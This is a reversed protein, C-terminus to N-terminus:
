VAAPTHERDSGQVPIPRSDSRRPLPFTVTALCGDDNQLSFHGDLDSEVLQQVITLGLGSDRGLEFGAPLGCGNDHVSTRVSDADVEIRVGIRGDMGVGLGHGMANWILENVVLAFVTARDEDIEVRDGDVSIQVAMGTAAADSSAIEAMKNVIDIATASEGDQSSLLDHVAAMGAIRGASLALVSAVEPSRTRRSQLNLLSAVTQLNNKVRHHLERLLLENRRLGRLSQEYLRANAMAIAAQDAFSAIIRLEDEVFERASMSYVSIVGIVAGRFMLPVCIMSRYGESEILKRSVRLRRDFLADEVILPARQAAVRGAIGEGVRLRLRRYRSSLKHAAVITLDGAAEEYQFIAAKDASLIAAAQEAITSLVETYELRSTLNQSIRQLTTLENNRQRLREDTQQYLTANWLATALQEAATEVFEIEDIPFDRHRRSRISLVGLLRAPNALVIPVALLSRYHEEDLAPLVKFRPDAWADRVAISRGLEAAAGSIGEGIQLGAQGIQDRNLGTTSRLVLRNTTEDLVWISCEDVDMVSVIAATTFDCTENVDLSSNAARAIRRLADLSGLASTSGDDILAEDGRADYAGAIAALVENQLHAFRRLQHARNAARNAPLLQRPLGSNLREAALRLAMGLSRNADSAGARLMEYLQPMDSYHLALQLMELADWPRPTGERDTLWQCIRELAAREPPNTGMEGWTMGPLLRGVGAM